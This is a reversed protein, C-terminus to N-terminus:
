ARDNIWVKSGNGDGRRIGGPTAQQRGQEDNADGKAHGTPELASSLPPRGM